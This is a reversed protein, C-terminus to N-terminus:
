QASTAAAKSGGESKANKKKREARGVLGINAGLTDHGKGTIQTLVAHWTEGKALRQHMEQALERSLYGLQEGNDRYVAIANADVPIILNPFWNCLNMRKARNFYRSDAHATM